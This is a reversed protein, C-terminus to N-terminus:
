VEKFQGNIFTGYKSQKMRTNNDPDTIKYLISIEEQTLARDYIRVDSFFGDLHGGTYGTGISLQNNSATGEFDDSSANGNAVSNFYSTVQWTSGIRDFVFVVHLWENFPFVPTSLNSYPTTNGGALGSYINFNQGLEINVTFEGGYAKDLITTREVISRVNIWYSITREQTVQLAKDNPVTIVSTSGNFEYGRASPVAGNNTGDNGDAYDNVNNELPYWAVLGDAPGIESLSGTFGTRNISQSQLTKVKTSGDYIDILAMAAGSEREAIRLDHWGATLFKTSWDSWWWENSIWTHWTAFVENDISMFFSDTTGSPTFIFASITYNGDSPAYFNYTYWHSQDRFGKAEIYKKVNYIPGTYSYTNFPDGEIHDPRWAHIFKPAIEKLM